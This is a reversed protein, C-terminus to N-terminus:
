AVLDYPYFCHQRAGEVEYEVGYGVCHRKGFGDPTGHGFAIAFRIRTHIETAGIHHAFKHNERTFASILDTQM